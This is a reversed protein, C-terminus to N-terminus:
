SAVEPAFCVIDTIHGRREGSWTAHVRMGTSMNEPRYADVLHLLATDAGDLKILAFAFPRDLLHHELPEAVWCWSTVVGADAVPVMDGTSRGTDPDYEAPPVIVRGDDCRVGEIRGDRLATFFRSLVPGVSRRYPYEVVHQATLVRESSSDEAV